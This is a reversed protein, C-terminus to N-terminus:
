RFKSAIDMCIVNMWFFGALFFYQVVYVAFKMKM